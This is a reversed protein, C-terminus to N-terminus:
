VNLVPVRYPFDYSTRVDGPSFIIMGTILTLFKTEETVMNDPAVLINLQKEELLDKRLDVKKFQIKCREM